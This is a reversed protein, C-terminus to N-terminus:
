ILIENKREGYKWLYGKYPKGNKAARWIGPQSGKINNAAMIPNEFELLFKNNLDYMLVKSKKRLIKRSYNTNPNYDKEYVFVYGKYHGYKDGRATAAIASSGINLFESAEKVSTFKKILIGNSSFVLIPKLRKLASKILSEKSLRGIGNPNTSRNNYGRLPNHTDLMNCWYNEESLLFRKKCKILKEYIFNEKGYLNYDNQLEKCSHNNYKLKSFHNHKRMKLDETGGVYIRGNIKCIITYIGSKGM